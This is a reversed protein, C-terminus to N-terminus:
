DDGVGDWFHEIFLIVLIKLLDRVRHQFAELVVKLTHFSRHEVYSLSGEELLDNVAWEVCSCHALKRDEELVLPVFEAVNEKGAM